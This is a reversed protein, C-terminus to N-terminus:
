SIHISTRVEQLTHEAPMDPASSNKAEAIAVIAVAVGHDIHEPNDETDKLETVVDVTLAEDVASSDSLANVDAQEQASDLSVESTADAPASACAEDTQAHDVAPLDTETDVV